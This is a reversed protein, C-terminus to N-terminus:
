EKPTNNKSALAPLLAAIPAAVTAASAPEPTAVPQPQYRPLRDLREFSGNPMLLCTGDKSLM